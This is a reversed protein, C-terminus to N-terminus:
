GKRKRWGMNLNGADWNPLSNVTIYHIILMDYGEKLVRMLTKIDNHYIYIYRPRFLNVSIQLSEYEDRSLSKDPEGIM